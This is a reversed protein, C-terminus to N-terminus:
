PRFGMGRRRGPGVGGMTARPFLWGGGGGPPSPRSGPAQLCEAKVLIRKGFAANLLPAELLPTRRVAGAMRAAAAEIEALGIAFGSM